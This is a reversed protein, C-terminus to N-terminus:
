AAGGGFLGALWDWIVSHFEVEEAAKGEPYCLAPYLVCWWNRGEGAGIVVKLARYEGAPLIMDGYRREPFPFVGTECVADEGGDRAAARAATELADRHECVIEWAAEADGADSLIARAQDLVADRVHLKLAQAAAGDDSAIVHLRVVGEYAAGASAAPGIMLLLGMVLGIARKLFREEWQRRM